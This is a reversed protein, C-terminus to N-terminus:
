ETTIGVAGARASSFIKVENKKEDKLLYANLVASKKKFNNKCLAIYTKTIKRAKFASLLEREAPKTKAYVILGETNRDLRHIAYFEGKSSLESFLGESSVGSPKDALYINEDEYVVIHSPKQEQKPTTYYVVEDGSKLPVSKNVRVGNVKVDKGRLLAALCFAGQPYVADTFDKLNTEETVIYKKM